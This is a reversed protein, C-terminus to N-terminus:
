LDVTFIGDKFFYLMFDQFCGNLYIVELDFSIMGVEHAITSYQNMINAASRIMFISCKNFPLTMSWVIPM